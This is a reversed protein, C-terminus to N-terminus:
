KILNAIEKKISQPIKTNNQLYNKLKNIKLVEKYLDTIDRDVAIDLIEGNFKMCTFLSEIYRLSGDSRVAKFILPKPKFLPNVKKQSRFHNLRKIYEEKCEPHLIKDTWYRIPDEINKFSIGYIKETAKTILICKFNSDFVWLADQAMRMGREMIERKLENGKRETIDYFAGYFFDDKYCKKYHIWKLVKSPLMIRFELTLPYKNSLLSRKVRNIDIQYINKMWDSSSEKMQGKSVGLLRETNGNLYLYEFNNTEKSNNGVWIVDNGTSVAKNLYDLSKQHTVTKTIDTTIGYLIPKNNVDFTRSAKYKIWRVTNDKRIIRVENEGLPLPFFGKSRKIDNKSLDDPHVMDLWLKPNAVFDEKSIGYTEEFGKGGIFRYQIPNETLIWIQDDLKNSVSELLELDELNKIIDSINKISVAIELVTDDDDLIPEISILGFKKGASGPLKIKEDIINKGSHFVHNEWLIIENTEKRGMIDTFKTGIIDEATYGPMLEDIFKDNVKKFRRTSDKIYIIEHISNMITQFRINRKKFSRNMAELNKNEDLLTKLSKMIKKPIKELNNLIENKSENSNEGIMNDIITNPLITAEPIDSYDSIESVRVGLLLALAITDTKSPLTNGNEWSSVTSRAKDLIQATKTITLKNQKRLEIIKKINIGM